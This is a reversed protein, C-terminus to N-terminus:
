EERLPLPRQSPVDSWNSASVIMAGTRRNGVHRAAALRRDSQGSRAPNPAPPGLRSQSSMKPGSFPPGDGTERGAAVAALTSPVVQRRFIRGPTTPPRASGPAAGPSFGFRRSDGPCWFASPGPRELFLFSIVKPRPSTALSFVGSSNIQRNEHDPSKHPFAGADEFGPLAPSQRHCPFHTPRTGPSLPAANGRGQPRAPPPSCELKKRSSRRSRFFFAGGCSSPLRPKPTTVQRLVGVLVM